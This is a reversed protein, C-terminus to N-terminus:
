RKLPETCFVKEGYTLRGFECESRDQTEKVLKTTADSSDCDVIEVNLDVGRAPDTNTCKGVAPTNSGCGALAVAAVVAAPALTRSALRFIM